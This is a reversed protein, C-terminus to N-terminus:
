KLIVSGLSKTIQMEIQKLEGHVQILQMQEEFGAREMDAQNQELMRKIKRLKFYAVSLQVDVHTVDRNVINM